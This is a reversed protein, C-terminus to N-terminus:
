ESVDKLKEMLENAVEESATDTYLVKNLCDYFTSILDSDEFYPSIKTVEDINEDLKRYAEYQIGSLMNENELVNIANQSVPIGKEIGQKEAMEKSNLLFDLLLASEKPYETNSSIAYMTAPKVYWQINNGDKDYLYDGVVIEYGSEVANAFSNDGDSIWMLSGAYVGSSINNKDYTSLDPIVKRTVLEKGYEIVNVLNEKTFSINNSDDFIKKGSSNEELSVCLFWLGKNSCSLPYVGDASMVDAADYLDQLTEPLNLGYSDYITKNYYPTMANLAIPIAELKDGSMGYALIDDSFQSLDIIDSLENLDYFRQTTSSYKNIWAYNIQMVDAETASAVEIDMREEYGTWDSYKTEVKIDPHLDEFTQVADLTYQNRTDTGWWSLSINAYKKQDSIDIEDNSCGVVLGVSASLMAM